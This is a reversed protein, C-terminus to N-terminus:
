FKRPIQFVMIYYCHSTTEDLPQDSGWKLCCFYVKQCFKFSYGNENFVNKERESVTQRKAIYHYTKVFLLNRMSPNFFGVILQVITIMEARDTSTWQKFIISDPMDTSNAEQFRDKLAEQGPYQICKVMMFQLQGFWLHMLLFILILVLSQRM